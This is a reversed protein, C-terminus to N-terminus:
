LLPPIVRPRNGGNASLTMQTQPFRPGSTQRIGVVEDGTIIQKLVVFHIKGPGVVLAQIRGVPVNQAVNPIYDHSALLSSSAESAMLHMLIRRGFMRYRGPSCDASIAM